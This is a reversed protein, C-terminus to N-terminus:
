RSGARHSARAARTARARWRRDQQATGSASTVGVPVRAFLAAGLVEQITAAGIAKRTLAEARDLNGAQLAAFGAEAERRAPDPEAAATAAVLLISIVARM